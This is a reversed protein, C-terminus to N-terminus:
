ATYGAAQGGGHSNLAYVISYYVNSNLVVCELKRSVDGAV